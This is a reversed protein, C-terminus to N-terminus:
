PSLFSEMLPDAMPASSSVMAEESDGEGGVLGLLKSTPAPEKGRYARMRGMYNRM